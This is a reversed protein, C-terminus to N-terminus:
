STTVLRSAWRMACICWIKPQYSRRCTRQRLLSLRGHGWRTDFETAGLMLAEYCSAIIAGRTNHLHMHYTEIEPYKDRIAM